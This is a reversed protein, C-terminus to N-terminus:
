RPLLASPDDLGMARRLSKMSEFQEIEARLARQGRRYQQVSYAAGALSLASALWGLIPIRHSDWFLKAAAGALILAMVMAGGSHAFHLISDRSELDRELRQLQQLRDEDAM